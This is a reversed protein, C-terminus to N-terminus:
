LTVRRASRRTPTGRPPQLEAMIPPAKAGRRHQGLGTSYLAVSAGRANISTLLNFRRRFALSHQTDRPYWSGPPPRGGRAISPSFPSFQAAPLARGRLPQLETASAGPALCAPCCVSAVDRSRLPVWRSRDRLAENHYYCKVRAACVHRPTPGASADSATTRRKSAYTLTQKSMRGRAKQVHAVALEGV